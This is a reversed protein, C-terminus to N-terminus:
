SSNLILIMKVSHKTTKLYRRLQFFKIIFNEILIFTGRKLPNSKIKNKLLSPLHILNIVRNIITICKCTTNYFTLRFPLYHDTKEFYFLLYVRLEIVVNLLPLMNQQRLINFLIQKKIDFMGKSINITTIAIM